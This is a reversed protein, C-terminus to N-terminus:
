NIETYSIELKLRKELNLSQNGHVVVGKPTWSFNTIETDTGSAPIDSINYVKVALKSIETPNESKLVESIYDTINVTYRYPLDDDDRELNGDFARNKSKTLVLERM